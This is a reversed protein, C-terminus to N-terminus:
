GGPGTAVTPSVNELRFPADLGARALALSRSSRASEHVGQEYLSLASAREGVLDLVNAQPALRSKQTPRSAM